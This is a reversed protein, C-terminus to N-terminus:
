NGFPMSKKINGSRSRKNKQYMSCYIFIIISNTSFFVSLNSRFYLPVFRNGHWMQNVVYGLRFTRSGFYLEEGETSPYKCMLGHIPRKLLSLVNVELTTLENRATFVRGVKYYRIRFHEIVFYKIKKQFGGNTLGITTLLYILILIFCM